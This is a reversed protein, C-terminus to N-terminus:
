QGDGVAEGSIELVAECLRAFVLAPGCVRWHNLRSPGPVGDNNIEKKVMDLCVSKIGLKKPHWCCVQHM